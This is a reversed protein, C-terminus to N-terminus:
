GAGLSVVFNLTFQLITCSRGFRNHALREHSRFRQVIRCRKPNEPSYLLTVLSGQKLEGIFTGWGGGHLRKTVDCHAVEYRLALWGLDENPFGPIFRLRLKVIHPADEDAGADSENLAERMNRALSTAWSGRQSPGLAWLTTTDKDIVAATTVEADRIFRIRRSYILCIALVYIAWAGIQSGLMRTWPTLPRADNSVGAFVILSGVLMLTSPVLVLLNRRCREWDALEARLKPTVQSPRSNDGFTLEPLLDIM